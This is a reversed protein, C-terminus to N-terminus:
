RPSPPAIARTTPSSRRRSSPKSIAALIPALGPGRWSRAYAQGTDPRVSGPLAIGVGLLAEARFDRRKRMGEVLESVKAVADQPSYGAPMEGGDTALIAHSVDALVVRLSTPEIMVGICVGADPNLTLLTSPRGASARKGHAKLADVVMGAKRLEILAASVTSKALSLERAIEASSLSGARSLLRVIRTTPDGATDNGLWKKLEFEDM